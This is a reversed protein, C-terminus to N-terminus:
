GMSGTGRGTMLLDHLRHLQNPVLRIPPPANSRVGNRPQVHLVYQFVSMETALQDLRDGDLGPMNRLREVLQCLFPLRRDSHTAVVPPVVAFDAEDLIATLDEFTFFRLHAADTVLGQGETLWRRGPLLLSGIVSIHRVNPVSLVLSGNSRLHRRLARLVRAPLILHELVDLITICDFYAEPLPLTDSQEVDLVCVDDLHRRAEAGAGPDLEIGVVEVPRDAKLIQGLYGVHCGVDLVRRAEKPVLRAAEVVSQSVLREEGCGARRYYGGLTNATEGGRLESRYLLQKADTRM